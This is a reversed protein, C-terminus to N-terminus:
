MHLGIDIILVDVTNIAELIAIHRKFFKRSGGQFRRPVAVSLM